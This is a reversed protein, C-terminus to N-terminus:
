KLKTQTIKEAEFYIEKTASIAPTIIKEKRRVLIEVHCNPCEIKGENSKNKNKM